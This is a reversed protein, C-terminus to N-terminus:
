LKVTFEVNALALKNGNKLLVAQEPQLINGNLRTKNKSNLDVAYYRGGSEIIKCHTRGVTTSVDSSIIGNAKSESRGIIYPTETINFIIKVGSYAKVSELVLGEGVCSTPDPDVPPKTGSSGGDLIGYLKQYIDKCSYDGNSLVSGVMHMSNLRSLSENEKIEKILSSRLDNEACFKMGLAPSHSIPMCLLQVSSTKTNVFIRDFSTDIDLSEFFGTGTVDVISKFLGAIVAIIESARYKKDELIVSLPIDDEHPLYTLKLKGNIYSKACRVFCTKTRDKMVKFMIQDLASDDDLIFALGTNANDLSVIGNELYYNM